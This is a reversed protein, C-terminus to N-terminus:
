VYDAARITAEDHEVVLLSNGQDRLRHLSAILLENDRAHLGASPEDLVYLVGVLGSGIQTALRIRELEGGSLTSVSRDLSLYSLGLDVLARARTSVDRVLRAAVDAARGELTLQEFFENLSSLPRSVLDPLTVDQVTVHRPLPALRTGECVKCTVERAY